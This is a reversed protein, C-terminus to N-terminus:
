SFGLQSRQEAWFMGLNKQLRGVSLSRPQRGQPITEVINPALFACALIRVVYVEDLGTRKALSRQDPAGESVIRGCSDHARAVAKLLALVPYETTQGITGLSVAPPIECGCRQTM